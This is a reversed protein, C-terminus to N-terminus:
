SKLFSRPRNTLMIDFLTGNQSKFCAAKKVLNTFNFVDEADSLHNSSNSDTKLEGVNLDGALLTNEYKLIIYIENYLNTDPPQYVFLTCWKKKVLLLELCLTEGNETEFNKNEIVIFGECVFSNEGWGWGWGSLIAIEELQHSNIGQYKSTITLSVQMSNQKPLM